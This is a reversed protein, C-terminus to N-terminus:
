IRIIFDSNALRIIDGNKVPHPQLDTLKVGNIYTGNTSNKVGNGDVLFYQNNQFVFRCHVRGIAKNFDVVGNVKQPNKGIIYEARDIKLRLPNSPDTSKLTASPQSKSGRGDKIVNAYGSIGMASIKKYLEELSLTGNSLLSSVDNMKTNVFTPTSTIVKILDTRLDNEFAALDESVGKVPLYILSVTYTHADIFIKNFSLDLKTSSLFGNNKVEIVSKLINSIITIFTDSDIINIMNQLSKCGSTFYLLKIKGNHLVKACKIFRNKESGTIVKYETMNFLESNNLIYATNRTDKVPIIQGSKILEKM